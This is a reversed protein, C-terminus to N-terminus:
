SLVVAVSNAIFGSGLLMEWKGYYNYFLSALVRLSSKCYDLDIDVLAVVWM